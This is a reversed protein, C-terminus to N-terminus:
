AIIAKFNKILHTKRKIKKWRIKFGNFKWSKIIMLINIKKQM